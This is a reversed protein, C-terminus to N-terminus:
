PKYSQTIPRNTDFDKAWIDALDRAHWDLTSADLRTMAELDNSIAQKTFEAGHHFGEKFGQAIWGETKDQMFAILNSLEDSDVKLKGDADVSFSYRALSSLLTALEKKFDHM